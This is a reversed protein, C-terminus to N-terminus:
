RFCSLQLLVQLRLTTSQLTIRAQKMTHAVCFWKLFTSKLLTTHYLLAAIVKEQYKARRYGRYYIWLQWCNEKARYNRADQAQEIAQSIWKEHTNHSQWTHFVKLLLSKCRYANSKTKMDNYIAQEAVYTSWLSIVRCQQKRTWFAFTSHSRQRLSLWDNLGDCAGFTWLKVM